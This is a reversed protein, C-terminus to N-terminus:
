APPSNSAQMGEEKFLQEYDALSCWAPLYYAECIRDLVNQEEQTLKTEGPKLNRCWGASDSRIHRIQESLANMCGPRAVGGSGGGRKAHLGDRHLGVICSLWSSNGEWCDAPVEQTNAGVSSPM